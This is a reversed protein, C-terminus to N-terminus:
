FRSYEYEKISNVLDEVEELEIYRVTQSEEEQDILGSEEMKDLHIHAMQISFREQEEEELYGNEVLGETIDEYTFRNKEEESM